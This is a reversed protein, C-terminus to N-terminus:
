ITVPIIWCSYNDKSGDRCLAEIVNVRDEDYLDKSAFISCLIDDKICGTVGDTSLFFYDGPLVDESHHIEAQNQSNNGNPQMAKLLVNKRPHIEAEEESIEGIRVMLNVLSHDWSKYLISQTPNDDTYLSPRFHYIRSDGIHIAYYGHRSFYLAALTTGMKKYTIDEAQKDLADYARELGNAIVAEPNKVVNEESKVAEYFSAAVLRSAVDGHGHGGMGDCVVFCRENTMDDSNAPMISDEQRARQGIGNLSYPTKIKIEM